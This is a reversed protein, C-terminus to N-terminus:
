TNIDNFEIKLKEGQKENNEDNQQSSTDPGDYSTVLYNYCYM